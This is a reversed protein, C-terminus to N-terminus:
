ALVSVNAFEMGVEFRDSRARWFTLADERCSWAREASLFRAVDEVILYM